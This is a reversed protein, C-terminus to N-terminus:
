FSGRGIRFIQVAYAAAAIGGDANRWVWKAGGLPPDNGRARWSQPPLLSRWEQTRYFVAACMGAVIRASGDGCVAADPGSAPDIARDAASRQDGSVDASFFGPVLNSVAGARWASGCVWCNETEVRETQKGRIRKGTPARCATGKKLM